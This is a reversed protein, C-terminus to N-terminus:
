RSITRLKEEGSEVKNRNRINVRYNTGDWRGGQWLFTFQISDADSIPIPIDIFSLDFDTPAATSNTITRREDLSWRVIFEGPAQIRLVMGKMIERVQRNPKWIELDSRSPGSQ